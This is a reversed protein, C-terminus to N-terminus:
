FVGLVSLSEFRLPKLLFVQSYGAHFLHFPSPSLASSRRFLALGRVSFNPILTRSLPVTKSVLRIYGAGGVAKPTCKPCTRKCDFTCHGRLRVANPLERDLPAKGRKSMSMQALITEDTLGTHAKISLAIWGAESREAVRGFGPLAQVTVVQINITLEDRDTLM